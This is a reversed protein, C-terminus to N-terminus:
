GTKKALWRSYANAELCNVEVPWDWPMSETNSLLLRLVFKNEENKVWFKPFKTKTFNAWKWGEESWLEQIEYGNENVFNL